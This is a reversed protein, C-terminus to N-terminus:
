NEIQYNNKNIIILINNINNDNINFFIKSIKM